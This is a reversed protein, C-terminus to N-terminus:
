QSHDNSFWAGCSPCPRKPPPRSVSASRRCRNSIALPFVGCAPWRANAPSVLWPVASAHGLRSAAPGARGVFRRHWRRLRVTGESIACALWQRHARLWKVSFAADCGQPPASLRHCPRFAGGWDPSSSVGVPDFDNSVAGVPRCLRQLGVRRNRTTRFPGASTIAITAHAYPIGAIPLDARILRHRLLGSVRVFVAIFFRASATAYCSTTYEQRALHRNRRTRPAPGPPRHQVKSDPGSYPM